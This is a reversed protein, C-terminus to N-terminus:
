YYQQIALTTGAWVGFKTTHANPCNLAPDCEVYAGIRIRYTVNPTVDIVKRAYNWHSFTIPNGPSSFAFTHGFQHPEDPGGVPQVHLVFFISLNQGSNNTYISEAAGAFIEARSGKSVFNIADTFIEPSKDGANTPYTAPNLFIWGSGPPFVPWFEDYPGLGGGSGQCGVVTAAAPNTTDDVILTTSISVPRIGRVVKAPDFNVLWNGLYRGNAGASILLQISQVVLSNSVPSAPDGVRAAVAGPTPGANINTYLPTTNPLTITQPLSQSNFTLSTPNNLVYKCVQGNALSAILLKELDMAALKQQLAATERYFSTMMTIISLTLIGVIATAVLVQVLSQGKQCKLKQHASVVLGSLFNRKM